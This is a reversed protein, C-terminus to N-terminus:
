PLIRYVITSDNQYYEECESVLLEFEPSTAKDYVIYKINNDKYDKIAQSQENVDFALFIPNSVSARIVYRETFVGVVYDKKNTTIFTNPKTHDRIYKYAEYQSKSIYSRNLPDYEVCENKFYNLYGKEILAPMSDEGFGILFGRFSIYMVALLPIIWPKMHKVQEVHLLFWVVVVPYTAMVFYMNSSGNMGINVTIWMGVCAMALCAGDIWGWNKRLIACNLLTFVGFFFITPNCYLCYIGSLIFDKLVHPIDDGFHGFFQEYIRQLAGNSELVSPTVIADLSGGGYGAINVVFYYVLFFVVLMPIGTIFARKWKKQVLWGICVIGAGCIGICAFPTKMGLNIGLTLIAIVAVRPLFNESKYLTFIFYFFFLFVGLGYEFGFGGHYMHGMYTVIMGNEDGSTFFLVLMGLVIYRVKSTCKRFLIYSGFVLLIMSQFFSYALGIVVPRIGTVLSEYALQLSSFYHYNFKTPYNRFSKPPFEKTLEIINGVWYLADNLVINAEAKPPILNAGASTFMAVLFMVASFVCCVIEGKSDRRISLKNQKFTKVIILISAISVVLMVIVAYKQLKLPVVCLYELLNLCFGFFYSLGIWEVTTEIELHLLCLLAMGPAIIGFVQFLVFVLGMMVGNGYLVSLLLSFFTLLTCYLFLFKLVHFCELRKIKELIM